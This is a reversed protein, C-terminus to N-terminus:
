LFHNLLLIWPLFFHVPSSSRPALPGTVTLNQYALGLTFCPLLLFIHVDTKWAVTLIGFTDRYGHSFQFKELLVPSYLYWSRNVWVLSLVCTVSDNQFRTWSFQWYAWSTTADPNNMVSDHSDLVCWSIPKAINASHIWTFAKCLPNYARETHIWMHM